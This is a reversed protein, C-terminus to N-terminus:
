YLVINIYRGNIGYFVCMCYKITGIGVRANKNKIIYQVNATYLLKIKRLYVCIILYFVVFLWNSNFKTILYYNFM